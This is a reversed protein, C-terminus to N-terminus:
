YFITLLALKLRGRLATSRRGHTPMPYVPTEKELVVGEGGESDEGAKVYRGM